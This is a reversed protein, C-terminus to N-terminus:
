GIATLGDLLVAASRCYPIGSGDCPQFVAGFELHDPTL